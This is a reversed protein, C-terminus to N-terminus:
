VAVHSVATRAITSPPLTSRRRQDDLVQESAIKEHAVHQDPGLTEAHVVPVPERVALDEVQAARLEHLALHNCASADDVPRCLHRRMARLRVEQQALPHLPQECRVAKGSEGLTAQLNLPQRAMSGFMDKSTPRCCSRASEWGSLTRM